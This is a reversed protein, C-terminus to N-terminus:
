RTDSFAYSVRWNEKDYIDIHDAMRDQILIADLHGYPYLRKYFFSLSSNFGSRRFLERIPNSKSVSWVYAYDCELERLEALCRDLLLRFCTADNDKVLYDVLLGQKFSGEERRSSIVAYGSLRGEKKVGIYKYSFDPHGDFRWRLFSESRVLDIKSEDRLTDVDKFDETFKDSVFVELSDSLGSLKKPKRVLLKDYLFGVLNGLARNRLKRSLINRPRLLQFMIETPGIIRYGQRLFGPASLQNPFGYSLAYGNEQLYRLSFKGMLSFLGQGQYEPHVMTDVHQAAVVKKDVLWMETFLFPRAGVIKGNDVAVIVESDPPSIYNEAHRWNWLQPTMDHGFSLRFLELLEVEAQKYKVLQVDVM